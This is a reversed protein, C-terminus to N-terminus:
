TIREEETEEVFKIEGTNIASNVSNNIGRGVFLGMVGERMQEHMKKVDM